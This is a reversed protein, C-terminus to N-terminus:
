IFNRLEMLMILGFAVGAGSLAALLGIWGFYIIFALNAAASITVILWAAFRIRRYSM